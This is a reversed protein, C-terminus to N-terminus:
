HKKCHVVTFQTGSNILLDLLDQPTPNQDDTIIRDFDTTSAFRYTSTGGLKESDVVLVRMAAHKLLKAVYVGCLSSNAVGTVSVSSASAFCIDFRFNDLQELAYAGDTTRNSLELDGGLFILSGTLEGSELKDALITAIHLSNVVFTVNQVNTIHQAVLMTTAGGDMTVVDGNKVLKAAEAAVVDKGKPNRSFRQSYDPDKKVAAYIPIAGGHVKKLKKQDCLINIDRRITEVSIHLEAASRPISVFKNQTAAKLLYAQREISKM